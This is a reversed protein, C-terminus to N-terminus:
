AHPAFDLFASFDQQKFSEDSFDLLSLQQPFCLIVPCFSPFLQPPFQSLEVHLQGDGKEVNTIGSKKTFNLILVNM